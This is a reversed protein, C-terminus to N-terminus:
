SSSEIVRCEPGGFTGGPVVVDEKACRDCKLVRGIDLAQRWSRNSPGFSDQHEMVFKGCRAQFESGEASGKTKMRFRRHSWTSRATLPEGAVNRPSLDGGCYRREPQVVGGGNPVLELVGHLELTIYADYGLTWRRQMKQAQLPRRPLGFPFTSGIYRYMYTHQHTQM